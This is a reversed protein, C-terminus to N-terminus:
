GSCTWTARANSDKVKGHGEGIFHPESGVFRSSCLVADEPSGHLTVHRACLAVLFTESM